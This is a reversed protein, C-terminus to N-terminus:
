GLGTIQGLISGALGQYDRNFVLHTARDLDMDDTSNVREPYVRLAAGAVAYLPLRGMPSIVGTLWREGDLVEGTWVDVWRGPPLYVDRVGDASLVPAVMLSDGCHFQDDVTWCAPDGQHHLVLARLLPNGGRGVRAAQDLLYPILAYRLRWWRRVLDAVEPYRYPERPSTGHYRMHSTFVGLQTWRMYLDPDPWSNMFDPLGHFGPVDHSWYGFGSLGLHLGGRITGAMGDWTCAPDGGWHVPYRQCGAWGARAWIVPDGTVRDTVEFAARQYLLGYLNHLRDAPMGLYDADLDIEEGFDTKICAVGQRLLGELLGQYWDVAAPNSFDIHKGFELRGESAAPDRPPLFRNETAEPHQKVDEEVVPHNWVTIRFGDDRLERMFADANPFKEESFEWECKWNRPFWGTDLHIVDCPFEEQRLKACVERVEEASYYTMRSMWIGYTWLPVQPPFGTVRRYNRLVRELSAGGLFFLDLRGEDLRAQAARTSIDALSLRGHASTHMFLGYGRSSLFLPVNKYARRSNCGMADANELAITQGALNLPAFREGTGCFREGPPSRLSFLSAHAQGERELYGLGMSELHAPYLCDHEWLDLALHGDPLVTAALAEPPPPVLDSWHRTPAAGPQLRLRVRGRPDVVEWGPRAARVSLPQLELSPDWCLMPSDAAAGDAPDDGFSVSIRVVEDGYARVELRHERRAKGSDPIFSRGDQAAFPVTVLAVGDRAEAGTAECARWIVDGDSAPDDFDLMATQFRDGQKM